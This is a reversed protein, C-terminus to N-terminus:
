ELGDPLPRWPWVPYDDRQRCEAELQAMARLVLGDAWPRGVLQVGVPLGTSNEDVESASRQVWDRRQRRDLQRPGSETERVQSTAVTGSPFGLLNFLMCASNIATLYFSAGHTMAPTPAPPCLILDVGAQDMAALFEQTYCRQGEVQDWYYSVSRGGFRSITKALYDQGLLALAGSVLPRLFGPLRALRFLTALRYDHGGGALWPKAWRGGDGALIGAYYAMADDVRTPSFPVVQFGLRAFHEGAEEVARRCAKSVPFYGDEAMVGIRLGPPLAAPVSFPVPPLSPDRQAQLSAAVLLEMVMILDDVQRAMPGPQDIISEQGPALYEDISGLISLRHSSPKFGHIGCYHAPLRISGGIDSGLGFVAGGAGILAAEGGSSGGPTRAPSWPNVTRGYLPNESELYLLMEPVNTKGLVIAGAQELATVLPSTHEAQHGRRVPLGATTATGQYDFSEKISIPVGHLPGHWHGRQADADLQDARARAAEALSVVTANLKPQLQQQRQLYADVAARATCQGSRIAAAVQAASFRFFEAPVGM